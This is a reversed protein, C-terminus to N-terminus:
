YAEGPFAQLFRIVPPATVGGARMAAQLAPDATFAELKARSEAQHYVIVCNPDDVARNVAAGIIGHKARLGAAGDYVKKWAAFDAVPHTVTMAATARDAVHADEVPTVWELQPPSTVGAGQMAAKLDASAVFAELRARDLAPLYISVTDGEGLNVHHGLIGAAKRAERHQDFARKWQDFNSVGHTVLVAIPPLKSM